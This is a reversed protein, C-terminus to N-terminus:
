SEYDKINLIQLISQEIKIATKERHDSITKESIDGGCAEVYENIHNWLALKQKINKKNKNNSAMSILNLIYDALPLWDDNEIIIQKFGQKLGNALDDRNIKM